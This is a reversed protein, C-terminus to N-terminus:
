GAFGKADNALVKGPGKAVVNKQDGHGGTNKVGGEAEKQRGISAARAM